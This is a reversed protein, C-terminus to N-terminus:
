ARLRPKPVIENIALIVAKFQELHGFRSRFTDLMGRADIIENEKRELERRAADAKAREAALADRETKQRADEAARAERAVAEEAAIRERSARQGAEMAERGARERESQEARLRALEQRELKIREAEAEQAQVGALMAEVQARSARIVGDAEAQFEGFTDAQFDRARLDAIVDALQASSKGVCGAPIQRIAEISARIADIRRQEVMAREMAEREKRQEETKILADIPQELEVLAATIRKAEADIQRCRELAPAKIEVRVKELDVRYGRIEARAVKAEAMGTGTTVDYVIGKFRAALDALAADTKSYEQISTSV